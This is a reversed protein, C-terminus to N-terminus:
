RRRYTVFRTAFSDKEGAPVDIESEIRWIAEEVAPFFTDGDITVEVHTVHLTDVVAVAQRYIEGGGIICIEDVGAQAALPIAAAIAEDLSHVVAVGEAAFGTDRTIVINARGPLPKGISQFTKRGMVVPKGSTLAKFRKLDTSLRWPMDGERGIVGNRSVAVVITKKISAM